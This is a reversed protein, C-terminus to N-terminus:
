LMRTYNKEPQTLIAYMPEFYYSLKGHLLFKALMKHTKTDYRSGGEVFRLKQVYIKYQNSRTYDFHIQFGPEVPNCQNYDGFLYVKKQVGHISQLDNDDM